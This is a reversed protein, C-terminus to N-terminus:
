ERLQVDIPVILQDQILDDFIVALDFTRASHVLLDLSDLKELGNIHILASRDILFLEKFKPGLDSKLAGGVSFDDTLNM